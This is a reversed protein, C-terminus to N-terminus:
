AAAPAGPEPRARFSRPVKDGPKPWIFRYLACAFKFIDIGVVALMLAALAGMVLVILLMAIKLDMTVVDAGYTRIFWSNILGAVFFVAQWWPMKAKTEAPAGRAILWGTCWWVLLVSYLLVGWGGAASLSDPVHQAKQAAELNQLESHQALDELKLEVKIFLVAACTRTLFEFFQQVPRRATLQGWDDIPEYLGHDLSKLMWLSRSFNCLFAACIFTACVVLATNTWDPLRLERGTTLVSEAFMRIAGSGSFIFYAAILTYGLAMAERMRHQGGGGHGRVIAILVRLAYVVLIACCVVQAITLGQNM